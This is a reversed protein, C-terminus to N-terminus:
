LVSVSFCYAYLSGFLQNIKKKGEEDDDRGKKKKKM